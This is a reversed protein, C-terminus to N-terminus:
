IHRIKLLEPKGGFTCASKDLDEPMYSLAWKDGEM